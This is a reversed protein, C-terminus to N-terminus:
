AIYTNIYCNIKCVATLMEKFKSATIFDDFIMAESISSSVILQGLLYEVFYEGQETLLVLQDM